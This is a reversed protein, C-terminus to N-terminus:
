EVILVAKLRVNGSLMAGKFTGILQNHREIFFIADKFSGNHGGPWRQVSLGKRLWRDWVSLLPGAVEATKATVVILLAGGLNHLQEGVDGQSADVYEHAGIERLIKEKSSDRSIAVVRYVFRNAYQLAMHGLGGLGQVAVKKRTPINLRRLANFAAVGACLVPAYQAADVHAPVRVAVKAQILVSEGYGGRKTEGNIVPNSCVVLLGMKCIQCTGDHGGHWGAGVRNGETYSTVGDGAAAVEGVIDHGFTIPSKSTEGWLM